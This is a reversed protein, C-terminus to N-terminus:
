NQQELHDLSLFGWLHPPLFTPDFFPRVHLLTHIHTHARAGKRTALVLNRSHATTAENRAAPLSPNRHIYSPGQCPSPNQGM